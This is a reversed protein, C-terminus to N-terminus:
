LLVRASREGGVDISYASRALTSNGFRLPAGNAVEADFIRDVLQTPVKISSSVAALSLEGSVQAIDTTDGRSESSCAAALVLLSSVALQSYKM